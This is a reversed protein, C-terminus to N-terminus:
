SRVIGVVPIDLPRVDLREPLGMGLRLSRGIRDAYDQMRAADDDDLVERTTERWLELWRVFHSARIAPQGRHVAMPNGRYSQTGLAVSSWFRTLLAKHEPWDHVAANFIPGISADARVKDYFRDVLNAIRTEDLTTM